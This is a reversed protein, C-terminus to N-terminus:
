TDSSATRSFNAVRLSLFAVPGSAIEAFSRFITVGAIDLLRVVRNLALKDCPQKGVSHFSALMVGTGLDPTLCM